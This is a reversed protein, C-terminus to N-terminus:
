EGTAFHILVPMPGHDRFLVVAVGSSDEGSWSIILATQGQEIGIVNLVKPQGLLGAFCTGYDPLLSVVHLAPTPSLWATLTFSSEDPILGRPLDWQAQAFYRASGDPLQLTHLQLRLAHPHGQLWPLLKGERDRVLCAAKWGPAVVADTLLTAAQDYAALPAPQAAWRPQRARRAGKVPAAAPAHRQVLYLDHPFLPVPFNDGRLPAVRALAGIFSDNGVQEDFTWGVYKELTIPVPDYGWGPLLDYTEGLAFHSVHPQTTFRAAVAPPLVFIGGLFGLTGTDPEPTPLAGPPPQETGYHVTGFIVVVHQSDYRGALYYSPTQAAAATLGGLAIALLLSTIRM